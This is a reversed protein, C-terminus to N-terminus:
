LRAELKGVLVTYEYTIEGRGTWIMRRIKTVRIAATSPYFNNIEKNHM